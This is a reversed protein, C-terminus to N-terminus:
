KAMGFFLSEMTPTEKPQPEPIGSIDGSEDPTAATEIDDEKAMEAMKQIQPIFVEERLESCANNVMEDADEGDASNLVIRVRDLVEKTSKAIDQKVVLGSIVKMMKILLSFEVLANNNKIEVLNMISEGAYQMRSFPRPQCSELNVYPTQALEESKGTIDSVVPAVYFIKTGLLNSCEVVDGAMEILDKVVKLNMNDLLQNVDQVQKIYFPVLAVLSKYLEYALLQFGEYLFPSTETGTIAVMKRKDELVDKFQNVTKILDTDKFVVNLMVNAPNIFDNYLTTSKIDGSRDLVDKNDKIILEMNSVYQNTYNTVLKVMNIADAESPLDDASQISDDWTPGDEVTTPTGDSEETEPIYTDDPNTPEIPATSEDFGTDDGEATPTESFDTETTSDGNEADTPADLSEEKEADEEAKKAEAESAEVEDSLAEVSIFHPSDPNFISSELGYKQGFINYLKKSLNNREM